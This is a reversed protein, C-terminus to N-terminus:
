PYCSYGEQMSQRRSSGTKNPLPLQEERATDLALDYYARDYITGKDMFPFLRVKAWAACMSKM